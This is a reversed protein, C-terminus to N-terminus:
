IKSVRYNDRLYLKYKVLCYTGDHWAMGHVAMNETGDIVVPRTVTPELSGRCQGSHLGTCTGPLGSANGVTCAQAHGVTCMTCAHALRHM